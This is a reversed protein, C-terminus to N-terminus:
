HHNVITILIPNLTFIYPSLDVMLPPKYSLVYESDQIQRYLKWCWREFMMSPVSGSWTIMSAGPIHQLHNKYTKIKGITCGSSIPFRNLNNKRKKKPPPLPGTAFGLTDRHIVIAHYIESTISEPAELHVCVCTHIYIYIWVYVVISVSLSIIFMMLRHGTIEWSHWSISLWSM